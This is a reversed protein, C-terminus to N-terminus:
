AVEGWRVSMLLADERGQAAPYYDRRLGDEVFGRQRYLAIAAANGRRVELLCCSAGSRVLAAIVADLLEGGLGRRQFRPAVAITLLSGEDLVQSCVAFGALGEGTEAVLVRERESRCVSLFQSLSWPAAATLEEIARM